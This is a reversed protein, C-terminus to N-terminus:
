KTIFLITHVKPFMLQTTSVIHSEILITLKRKKFMSHTSQYNWAHKVHVRFLILGM